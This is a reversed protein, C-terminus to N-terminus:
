FLKQNKNKQFENSPLAFLHSLVSVAGDFISLVGPPGGATFHQSQLLGHDDIDAFTEVLDCTEIVCQSQANNSFSTDIINVCIDSEQRGVDDFNANAIYAPPRKAM